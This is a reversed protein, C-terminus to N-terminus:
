AKLPVIASVLITVGVMGVQFWIVANRLLMRIRRSEEPSDAHGDRSLSGRKARISSGIPIPVAALPTQAYEANASRRLSRAVKAEDGREPLEYGM